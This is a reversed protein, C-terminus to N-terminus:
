LNAFLQCKYKVLLKQPQQPLNEIYLWAQIKLM